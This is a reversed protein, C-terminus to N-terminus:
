IYFRLTQNNSGELWLGTQPVKWATGGSEEEGKDGGSGMKSIGTDGKM